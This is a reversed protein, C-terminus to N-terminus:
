LSNPIVINVQMMMHRPETIMVSSTSVIIMMGTVLNTPIMLSNASSGSLFGVSGVNVWSSNSSLALSVM